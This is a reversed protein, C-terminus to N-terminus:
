GNLWGGKKKFRRMVGHNLHSLLMNKNNCPRESQRVWASNDTVLYVTTDLHIHTHGAIHSAIAARQGYDLQEKTPNKIPKVKIPILADARAVRERWGVKERKERIQQRKRSAASM